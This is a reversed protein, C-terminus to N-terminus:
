TQTSWEIHEVFNAAKWNVISLPNTTSCVSRVSVKSPGKDKKKHSRAYIYVTQGSTLRPVLNIISLM